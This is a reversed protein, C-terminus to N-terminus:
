TASAVIGCQRLVGVAGAYGDSASRKVTFYVTDGPSVAFAASEALVYQNTGTLTAVTVCTLSTETGDNPLTLPTSLGNTPAPVIRYSFTLQPLTGVARGLIVFRLKLEPDTIALDFPVNIKGRYERLDGAVFELYMLPPDGYYAEEAGDLRVLQVDLEKSDAPDVSVAVLGQHVTRAVSAITRTATVTGSLNVNSSLSYLGEIVPGRKFESTSADFDKLALYGTQDNKVVLNLDLDLELHGTSAPLTPDGYCRVKLRADGSHLSLVVASDTAFNVRTFYLWLEMELHRPCEAGISDSYSESNGSDYDVPWPVDGYCNSMWWIGNHDLVALGGTGLPVTTGGVDASTGKNWVLEAYNLPVPPWLSSLSSHASLNYGFVAGAPAKGGFVPHDAPLWGPLLASPDSIQHLGDVTPQTHSGAPKCTLRFRHHTHRDLYDVFQPQVFVKGDPTQRLVAVSVPPKSRTLKGPTASSLYYTGSAATGDVTAQSIDITDVGFLLIDALTANHKFAVIGWVQASSSTSVIGNVADSEAIAIARTFVKTTTNLYVAMGIKVEAEVTVRRSYVTSGVAAAQLVDWIYKTNQDLQRLPKNIAGSQVPAQEGILQLFNEFSM